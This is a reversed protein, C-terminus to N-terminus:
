RTSDSNGADAGIPFRFHRIVIGVLVSRWTSELRDLVIGATATAVGPLGDWVVQDSGDHAAGRGGGHVPIQEAGAM